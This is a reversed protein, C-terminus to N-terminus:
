FQLLIIQNLFLKVFNGNFFFVVIHSFDKKNQKKTYTLSGGGGRERENYLMKNWKNIKSTNQQM